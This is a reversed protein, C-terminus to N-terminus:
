PPFFKLDQWGSFKGVICFATKNDCLCKVLSHPVALRILNCVCFSIGSKLIALCICEVVYMNELYFIFFFFFIFSLKHEVSSAM